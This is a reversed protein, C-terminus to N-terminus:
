NYFVDGAQVSICPRNLMSKSIATSYFVAIICIRISGLLEWNLLRSEATM